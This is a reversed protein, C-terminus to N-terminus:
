RDDGATLESELAALRFRYLEGRLHGAWMVVANEGNDSYYARRTSVITFGYKKYLNQAVINSERAELTIWSAGRDIAEHLLHVLLAEGYRKGRSAPHVAITTIHSDELIVWIGGYAVIEDGVRGVFYHALKNDNLESAFASSPWSTSFSLAEIRMVPRIDAQTMRSITMRQPHGASRPDLETRM